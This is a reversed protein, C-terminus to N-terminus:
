LRQAARRVEALAAKYFQSCLTHNAPDRPHAPYFEAVDLGHGDVNHGLRWPGRWQNGDMIPDLVAVLRLALDFGSGAQIGAGHNRWVFRQNTLFMTGRHEVGSALVVRLHAYNVAEELPGLDVEAWIRSASSEAAKKFFGM